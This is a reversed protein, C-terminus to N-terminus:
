AAATITATMSFPMQPALTPSEAPPDYAVSAIVEGPVLNLFRKKAAPGRLRDRKLSGGPISGHKDGRIPQHLVRRALLNASGGGLSFESRKPSLDHVQRSKARANQLIIQRQHENPSALRNQLLEGTTERGRCKQFRFEFTRQDETRQKGGNRGVSWPRREVGLAERAVTRKATECGM